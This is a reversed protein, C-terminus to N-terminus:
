IKMGGLVTSRGTNQGKKSISGAFPSVPEQKKGGFWDVRNYVELTKNPDKPMRMIIYRLTDMLHNDKDVPRDNSNLKTKQYIYKTAEDKLEVLDNFFRLKGNYMYDRVREIGALIDNNAAEIYIDYTRKLYDGYSIGDRDNRKRVSPDGQIPFAMDKDKTMNKIREAHYGVPQEPVKYEQYIHLVGDVPSVAGALFGTPDNYGPDLGFVRKWNDPIPFPEELHRSFEPYVAGERVDLYCDVYKRIWNVSKGASIRDIFDPPLNKNDRTSSIFTHYHKEAKAKTLNKYVGTDISNSGVIKSSILLFKERIWTDEPNTSVIGMFKYDVIKGNKDFVAAAKNRLRTTLQDFIEYDVGSAEEIYFATLNLSRLKQEDNSAYILIEHGNTLKYYPNPAKVYSKIHWKPLFKDLEPIVADKVQSLTPATILSRGNPTSLAHLSIEACSATTKGSGYGGINMRFQAPSIHFAEQHELPVYDVLTLSCRDCRGYFLNQDVKINGAGCVPCNYHRNGEPDQKYPRIRKNSM